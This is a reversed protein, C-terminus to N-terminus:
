SISSGRPPLLGDRRTGAAGDDGSVNGDYYLADARATAERARKPDLSVMHAVLAEILTTIGAIGLRPGSTHTYAILTNDAALAAPSLKSDSIAVTGTGIERASELVQVTARLYRWVSIAIVLDDAHLCGLAAGADAVGSVSVARYGLIQLSSALFRGPGESVGGAVVLVMPAAIARQAVFDLADRDIEELTESVNSIATGFVRSVIDEDGASDLLETREAFTRRRAFGERVEQQAHRWGEYGLAQCTRVVTAADAGARDAVEGASAFAVLAPDDILLRAITQQKPPLSDFRETVRSTLPHPNPETVLFDESIPRSFGSPGASGTRLGGRSAVPLNQRECRNKRSLAHASYIM